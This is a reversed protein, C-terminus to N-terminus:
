FSLNIVTPNFGTTSDHPCTSPVHDKIYKASTMRRRPGAHVHASFTPTISHFIHNGIGVTCTCSYIVFPDILVSLLRGAASVLSPDGHLQCAYGLFLISLFFCPPSPSHRAARVFVIPRAFRVAHAWFHLVSLGSLQDAKCSLSRCRPM